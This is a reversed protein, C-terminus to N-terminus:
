SKGLKPIPANGYPVVMTKPETYFNLSWEGGERDVGSFGYGGFPANKERVMPTNLLVYGSRLASATRHGRKLDATWIYGALGFRTDNAAAIVADDDDFVLFTAFPGFIEEQCVRTKNDHALVVSPSIYYGHEAQTSGQELVECNDQRAIDCFSLVRQMHAQSSQPGLETAADFPDGIRINHTRAIFDAIFRDAIKAHVFIRSGALCAQGNNAYIAMIAGDLARDYDADDFIINASKGGLEMTVKAFRQAAAIAIARGGNEGGTFSIAQVLPHQALAAGTEPGRGNVVHLVGRPLGAEHLITVLAEAGLPSQESPKLVCSNGAALAAALKLCAGQFPINWPTFLGATGVAERTVLTHTEPLQRFLKDDQTGIRGAFYEFWSAGAFIQPRASRHFVLGTTYVDLAALSDARQKILEAAKLLVSQRQSIPACSWVGNMFAAHASQVAKNVQEPSNEALELLTKGTAPNIVDLLHAGAVDALEGNILGTCIKPFEPPSLPTQQTM